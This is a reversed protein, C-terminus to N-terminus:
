LFFGSPGIRPGSLTESLAQAEECREEIDRNHTKFDEYSVSDAICTGDEDGVRIGSPVSGNETVLAGGITLSWNASEIDFGASYNSLTADGLTAIKGEVGIHAGNLSGCVHINHRKIINPLQTECEQASALPLLLSLLWM